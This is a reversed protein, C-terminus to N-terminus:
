WDASNIDKWQAPRGALELIEVREILWRDQKKTLNLRAKATITSRLNRAVFSQEDFVTRVTMVVAAQPPSIKEELITKYNKKILPQSLWMRCYHMLINKTNHYSDHYSESILPEIAGPDEHRAAKLATDIVARVEEKETRVLCDM